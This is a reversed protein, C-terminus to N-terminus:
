TAPTEHCLFIDDWSRLLAMPTRERIATCLKCCHLPYCPKGHSVGVRKHHRGCSACAPLRRLGESGSLLLAGDAVSGTQSMIRMSHRPWIPSVALDAVADVM